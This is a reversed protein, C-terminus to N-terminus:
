FTNKHEFDSITHFDMLSTRDTVNLGDSQQCKQSFDLTKAIPFCARVCILLLKAGLDSNQWKMAHVKYNYIMNVGLEYEANNFPYHIVM